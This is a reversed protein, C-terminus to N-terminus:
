GLIADILSRLTKDYTAEDYEFSSMILGYAGKESILQAEAQLERVAVYSKVGKDVDSVSTYQKGAQERQYNYTTEGAFASSVTITLQAVGKGDGFLCDGEDTMPQGLLDTVQAATFPCTPKVDSLTKGGDGPDDDDAFGIGAAASGDGADQAGGCGAPALLAGVLLLSTIVRRM